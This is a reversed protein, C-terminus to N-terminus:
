FCEKTIVRLILSNKVCELWRQERNLSVMECGIVHAVVKMGLSSPPLSEFFIHRGIHAAAVVFLILIVSVFCISRAAKANDKCNRCRSLLLLDSVALVIGFVYKMGPQQKTSDDNQHKMM